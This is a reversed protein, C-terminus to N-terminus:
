IGIGQKAKAIVTNISGEALSEPVLTEEDTSRVIAFADAMIKAVKQEADRLFGDAQRTYLTKQAGLIGGIPNGDVFDSIQAEESKRKQNLIANETDIKDLLKNSYIVEAELKDLQKVLLDTEAEIKPLQADSLAIASTLQQIEKDIKASQKASLLIDSALKDVQKMLLAIEANVKPVEAEIKAIQADVLQGQKVLNQGELVANQKQVEVLQIEANVKAVQAAILENQQETALFKVAQDLVAVMSGLYVNSYEAGKIKGGQYEEELHLKVSRMLKDFAGSGNLSVTTLDTIATGSM